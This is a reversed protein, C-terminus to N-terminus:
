DTPSRMVYVVPAKVRIHATMSFVTRRRSCGSRRAASGGSPPTDLMACVRAMQKRVDVIARYEDNIGYFDDVSLYRDMKVRAGLLTDSIM